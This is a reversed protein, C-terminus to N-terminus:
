RAPKQRGERAINCQYDIGEDWLPPGQEAHGFARMVNGSHASGSASGFFRESEGGTLEM